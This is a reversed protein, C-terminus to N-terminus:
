FGIQSPLADTDGYDDNYVAELEQFGMTIQYSVMKGDRFTAYNGNPTYNVQFSKLACEKFQNLFPHSDTDEHIYKIKFTHPTKLFLNSETRIPAMGQKFFRIIRVIEDAEDSNRAALNFVFNFPRLTPKRFLLELNPNLVAGTARTLLGPVGAADGAITMALADKVDDKGTGTAIDLQQKLTGVASEMNNRIGDLAIQSLASQMANMTGDSWDCGNQDQIGSPIPLYVRGITSQDQPRVETGFAKERTLGSPQYEVMSFLIKDQKSQKLTSPYSHTGFQRRTGKLNDGVTARDARGSYSKDEATEGDTGSKETTPEAPAVNTLSNVLAKKQTFDTIGAGDVGKATQAQTNKYIAAAKDQMAKQLGAGAVDDDFDWSEGGDTTTGALQWQNDKIIYLETTGGDIKGDTGQTVKTVTAHYIKAGPKSPDETTVTRTVLRGNVRTRSRTRKVGVGVRTAAKDSCIAGAPCPPDGAGFLGM